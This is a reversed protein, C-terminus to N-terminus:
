SRLQASPAGEKPVFVNILELEETEGVILEGLEDHGTSAVTFQVDRTKGNTAELKLQVKKKMQSSFTAALQDLVEQSSARVTYSKLPPM